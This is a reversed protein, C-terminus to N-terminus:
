GTRGTYRPGNLEVFLRLAMAALTKCGKTKPNTMWTTLEWDGHPGQADVQKYAIRSWPACIRGSSHFYGGGKPTDAPQDIAGTEPNFWHWAPPLGPLGDCGVTLWLRSGDHAPLGLVFGPDGTETLDWGRNEAIERLQGFQEAFVLDTATTM